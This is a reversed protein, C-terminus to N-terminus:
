QNAKKPAVKKRKKPVLTRLVGIATIGSKDRSPLAKIRKAVKRAKAKVKGFFSM